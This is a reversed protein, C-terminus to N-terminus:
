KRLLVKECAKLINTSDLKYKKMLLNPKGSEGFKDNVAIMEM